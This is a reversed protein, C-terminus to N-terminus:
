NKHGVIPVLNGRKPNDMALVLDHLVFFSTTENKKKLYLEFRCRKPSGFDLVVDNQM